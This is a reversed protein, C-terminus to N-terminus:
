SVLLPTLEVVGNRGREREQKKGIGHGLRPIKTPSQSIIRQLGTQLQDSGLDSLKRGIKKRGVLSYSFGLKLAKKHKENEPTLNLEILIGKHTKYSM